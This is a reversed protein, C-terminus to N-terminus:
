DFGERIRHESGAVTRRARGEWEWKSQGVAEMGDTGWWVSHVLNVKWWMM